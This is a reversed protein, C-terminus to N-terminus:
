FLSLQDHTEPPSDAKPRRQILPKAAMSTADETLWHISPVGTSLLAPNILWGAFWELSLSDMHALEGVCGHVMLNIASMMCCIRDLDAAYVRAKPNYKHAVLLMRASGCAPDNITQRPEPGLVMKAMMDCVPMPTFFQGMYKKNRGSMEMYWDGLLDVSAGAKPDTPIAKDYAGMLQGFGKSITLREQKTYRSCLSQNREESLENPYSWALVFLELFDRFVEYEGYKRYLPMLTDNLPKLLHEYM